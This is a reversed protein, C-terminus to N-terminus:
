ETPQDDAKPSPFSAENVWAQAKQWHTDFRTQKGARWDDVRNGGTTAKGAEGVTDIAATGAETVTDLAGEGVSTVTDTLGSGVGEVDLTAVSKVTKFLGKGVGSVIGVAGKGVSTAVNVAGEGVAMGAGALDGATNGFLNGVRGFAGFLLAGSGVQPNDPTGGVTVPFKAGTTEIEANVALVNTAVQVQANVDIVDGGLTSAVGPPIVSGVAGLEMGSIVLNAVVGPIGGGVPGLRAALGIYSPPTDAHEFRGTFLAKTVLERLGAESPSFLLDDIALEADRLNIEMPETESKSLDLFTFSLREIRINDVKVALSSPETAEAPPPAEATTETAPPTLKTVNMVGNTDTIITVALDSVTVENVRINGTLLAALKINVRARGLSVFSGEGFGEPQQINLGTLRVTGGFLNVYLRQLSTDPLLASGLVNRTIPTVALALLAQLAVLVLVLVSVIKGCPRSWIKKLILKM